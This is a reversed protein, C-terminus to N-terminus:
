PIVPQPSLDPGRRPRPDVVGCLEVGEGAVTVGRQPQWGANGPASVIRTLPTVLRIIMLDTPRVDVGARTWLEEGDLLSSDAFAERGYRRLPM